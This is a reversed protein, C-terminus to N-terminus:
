FIQAVSLLKSSIKLRAAKAAEDNIQFRIKDDQTFFRIMGGFKPFVPSDGVTLISKSGVNTIVEKIEEKNSSSVYLINCNIVESAATFYKVIIPHQDIKEGKVAEELSTGFKNEGYVGIVFPDTANTFVEAPWEVFRSFNYLFVAKVKFEPNQTQAGSNFAMLSAVVVALLAKRVNYLYKTTITILM